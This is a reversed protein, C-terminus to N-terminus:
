GGPSTGSAVVQRQGELRLRSHTDAAIGNVPLGAIAAVANADLIIHGIGQGTHVPVGNKAALPHVFESLVIGGGGLALGHYM